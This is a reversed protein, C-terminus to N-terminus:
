FQFYIFENARGVQTFAFAALFGLGIIAWGRPGVNFRQAQYWRNTIAPALAAAGAVLLAVLWIPNLSLDVGGFGLMARWVTAADALDNARFPVWTANVFLITLAWASKSPLRRGRSSWLRGVSMAAGHALGWVIVQWGAGHWLGGLGMTLLLNLHERPPKVRNGGLPIYVYTLMFRSLTIHWRTWFERVSTSRYPAGFNIPLRINFLLAIGIAMDTYGSFDFYIQITYPL